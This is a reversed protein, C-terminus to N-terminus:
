AHCGRPCAVTQADIRPDRIQVQGSDECLLCRVDVIVGACLMKLGGLTDVPVQCVEPVEGDAYLNKCTACM